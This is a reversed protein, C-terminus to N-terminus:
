NNPMGNDKWKKFKKTLCDSLRVPGKPMKGSVIDSYIQDANNKIETYSNFTPSQSSHCGNCNEVILPRIDNTFSYQTSDCESLQPFLAEESDNYCSTVLILIISSIFIIKKM